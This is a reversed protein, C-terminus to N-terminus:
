KVTVQSTKQITLYLWIAWGYSEKKQLLTSSLQAFCLWNLINTWLSLKILCNTGAHLVGEYKIFKTCYGANVSARCETTDGYIGQQKRFNSMTGFM